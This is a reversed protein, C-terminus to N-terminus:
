DGSLPVYSPTSQLQSPHLEPPLTGVPMTVTPPELTHDSGPRATQLRVTMRYAYFAGVEARWLVTGCLLQYAGTGVTVMHPRSRAASLILIWIGTYLSVELANTSFPSPAVGHLTPSTGADPSAGCDSNCDESDLRPTTVQAGFEPPTFLVAQSASCITTGRSACPKYAAKLVQASPPAGISCGLCQQHQMLSGCRSAHTAATHVSSLYAVLLQLTARVQIRPRRPRQAPTDPMSRAKGRRQMTPSDSEAECFCRSRRRQVPFNM